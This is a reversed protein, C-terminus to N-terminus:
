TKALRQLNIADGIRWQMAAVVSHMMVLMKDFRPASALQERAADLGRDHYAHLARVTVEEATRERRVPQHGLARVMAEATAWTSWPNQGTVLRGDVVTNALYQTGAQFRAGASRARDELLFGFREKAKPNLFLEEENTFGTVMRGALLPKGGVQVDLLAAPGHCVAGVVGAPAIAAVIRQIDPNGPFDGMAGKGGMFMVARYASPDIDALRLTKNVKAQAVPDNLFAYDADQMDDKDIRMSPKGGKPSAIDVEFGNAKFIYYSRALETLEYGAPKGGIEAVSTVVALIRGRRPAAGSLFALQSPVAATNAKPEKDLGLSRVHAYGALGLLVVFGVLAGIGILVKRLMDDEM